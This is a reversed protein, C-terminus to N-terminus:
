NLSSSSGAEARTNRITIPIDHEDLAKQFMPALTTNADEMGLDEATCSLTLYCGRLFGDIEKITEAEKIYEITMVVINEIRAEIFENILDEKYTDIM